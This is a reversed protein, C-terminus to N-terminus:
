HHDSRAMEGGDGCATRGQLTVQLGVDIGTDDVEVLRGIRGTVLNHSPHLPNQPLDWWM